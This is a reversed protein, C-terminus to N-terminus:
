EVERKHVLQERERFDRGQRRWNAELCLELMVERFGGLDEWASDSAGVQPKGLMKKSFRESMM